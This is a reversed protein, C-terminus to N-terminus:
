KNFELQVIFRTKHEQGFTLTLGIAQEKFKKSLVETGIQQFRKCANCVNLLTPIDFEHFIILLLETPFEQLAPFVTSSDIRKFNAM